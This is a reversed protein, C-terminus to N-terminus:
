KFTIVVKTEKIDNFNVQASKEVLVKKKKGEIREKEEWNLVIFDDEVKVLKGEVSGHSELVVKVTRGINKVYQQRVKFPQDLGPSSVKLEFDCKERDLNHEINRSVSICDNVSVSNKIGDIEVLISNTPSIKVDVLYSGNDLEDIRENALEIVKEKSIM